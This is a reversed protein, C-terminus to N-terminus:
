LILQYITKGLLQIGYLLSCFKLSSLLVFYINLVLYNPTLLTELLLQKPLWIDSTNVHSPSLFEVTGADLRRNRRSLLCSVAVEDETNRAAFCCANSNLFYTLSKNVEISLILTSNKLSQEELNLAFTHEM